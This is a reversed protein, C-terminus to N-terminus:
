SSQEALWARLTPHEAVVYWLLWGAFEDDDGPEEGVTETEVLLRPLVNPSWQQALELRAAAGEEDGALVRELVRAWMGSSTLDDPYSSFLERAAELDGRRLYVAMLFLRAGQDDDPNLELMDKLVAIGEDEDEDVGTALLSVGLQYLARMYPRTTAIAWFKGRCEEFYEEGLWREGAWAARYLLDVYEDPDETVGIALVLRADVCDPDMQIADSAIKMADEFRVALLANFMLDQAKEELNFTSEVARLEEKYPESDIFAQVAEESDFERRMLVLESRRLVREEEITEELQAEIAPRTRDKRASAGGHDTRDARERKQQERRKLRRRRREEHDM